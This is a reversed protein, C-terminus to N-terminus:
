LGNYYKTNFESQVEISLNYPNNRNFEDIAAKIYHDGGFCTFRYIPYKAVKWKWGSDILTPVFRLKFDNKTLSLHWANDNFFVRISMDEVKTDVELSNKFLDTRKYIKPEYSAYYADIHKQLIQKFRKGEAKVISNLTKGDDTKIKSGANKQLLFKQFDDEWTM